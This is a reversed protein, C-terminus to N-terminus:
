AQMLMSFQRVSYAGDPSHWAEVIKRGEPWDVNDLLVESVLREKGNKMFFVRLWHFGSTLQPLLEDKLQELLESYEVTVPTTGQALLPGMCVRWAKGKFIWSDWEIQDDDRKVDVLCALLVHMSGRLFKGFAQKAADSEDPGVGAFSEILLKGTFLPSEVRVDLQFVRANPHKDVRVVGVFVMLDSAPILVCQDTRTTNLGHAILVEQLAAVPDFTM